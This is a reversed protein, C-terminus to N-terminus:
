RKRYDSPALVTIEHEVQYLSKGIHEMRKLLDYQHIFDIIGAIMKGDSRRFGVLQVNLAYCLSCLM